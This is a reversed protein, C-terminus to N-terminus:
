CLCWEPIPYQHPLPQQSFPCIPNSTSESWHQSGLVAILIFDIILFLHTLTLKVVKMRKKKLQKVRGGEAMPHRLAFTRALHQSMSKFKRAELVTIWILKEKDNPRLYEIM